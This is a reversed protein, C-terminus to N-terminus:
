VTEAAQTERVWALGHNARLIIAEEGTGYNLLWSNRGDHGVPLQSILGEAWKVRSSGSQVEAVSLTIIGKSMKKGKMFNVYHCKHAWM